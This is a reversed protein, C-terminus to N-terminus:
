HNQDQLRRRHHHRSVNQVGRQRLASPHENQRSCHGRHHSTQSPLRVEIRRKAQDDTIISLEVSICVEM